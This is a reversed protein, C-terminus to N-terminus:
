KISHESLEKIGGAQIIYINPDTDSYYDKIVHGKYITEGLRHSTKKNEQCHKKVYCFNKIKIFDLKQIIKKM